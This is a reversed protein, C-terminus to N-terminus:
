VNPQKETIYNFILDIMQIKNDSNMLFSNFDRPVKTKASKVIVKSSMGRIKRESTKISSERYTDAVLDVREYGKPISSLIILTLHEFTDPVQKALM